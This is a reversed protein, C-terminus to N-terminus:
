GISAFGVLGELDVASKGPGVGKKRSEFEEMRAFQTVAWLAHMRRVTGSNVDAIIQGLLRIPKIDNLDRGPTRGISEALARKVFEGQARLRQDRDHHGLAAILEEGTAKSEDLRAM